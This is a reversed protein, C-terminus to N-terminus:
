TLGRTSVTGLNPPPMRGEPFELKLGGRLRDLLDEAPPQVDEPVDLWQNRQKKRAYSEFASILHRCRPHITLSLTGDASRLLAEVLQLGDQVSRPGSHWSELGSRGRCGAREFEGRVTPGVATRASSSPDMSVRVRTLGKGCLHESHLRIATANQEASLEEAFYDAYVNVSFGRGNPKPKTQFWVAGTHVGPDIGVHIPRQPDFDAEQNVHAPQDFM